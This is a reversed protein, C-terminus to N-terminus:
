APGPGEPKRLAWRLSMESCRPPVSSKACHAVSMPMPLTRLSAKRTRRLATTAGSALDEPPTLGM